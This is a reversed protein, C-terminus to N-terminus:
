ATSEHRRPTSPASSKPVVGALGLFHQQWHLTQGDLDDVVVIVVVVRHHFGGGIASGGEEQKKFEGPVIEERCFLLICQFM